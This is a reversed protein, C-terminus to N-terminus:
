IKIAIVEVPAVYNEAINDIMNKIKEATSEQMLTHLGLPPPGGSAETKARLQMFFDLAFDRCNKESTIEFGADALTQRYKGPTALSSTNSDTAWPVPYVLEGDNQRMVDYVGFCSGPRLVRYIETFLQAKDEINMGVHMMYGGDFAEDQFPMSLASGQQLTIQKDLNVWSCLAKGTEIYEQTLDIGTIHSKYKNAVFRSAGGLGCGVDLIHHQESFELQDLFNETALRGGIHFEDVPALDEITVSDVTKGLKTVAAQIAKLLDGHLYNEAVAKDISM